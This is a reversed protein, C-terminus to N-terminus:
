AYSYRDFLSYVVLDTLLAILCGDFLQYRRSVTLQIHKAIHHGLGKAPFLLSGTRITEKRHTDPGVRELKM